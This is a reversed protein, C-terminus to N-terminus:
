RYEGLQPYMQEIPVALGAKARASVGDVLVEFTGDDLANYAATVVEAPDTKPGSVGAAMPTDVWGVHVGVVHVGRPALDLRLSNTASWFAAKTASYSGAGAHWSLASHMDIVAAGTSSTALTDAFARIMRVQGFFNTEFVQHLEEDTAVLLGSHQPSAGANNVLVTTDSAARAIADVSAPDTIDLALPVIRSDDWARPTRATAYVKAAGRKLAQSVFETGLGGNAGTVLVVAGALIGM